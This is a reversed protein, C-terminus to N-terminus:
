EEDKECIVSLIKDQLEADMDCGNTQKWYLKAIEIPNLAKMEEQSFQKFVQDSEDERISQLQICCYRCKKTETASAAKAAWDAGGYQKVKVNLRIYAEKDDPFEELLRLAEEFEIPENEPITIVPRLTPIKWTRLAPSSGHEELEVITVSHTYDENFSVPIPSGSYRCGPAITQPFHIHGLALYDFGEGLERIDISDIGGVIIDQKRPDSGIVTTHATMIVPLSSSNISEVQEILAKYFAAPRKERPLDEGTDPFNQPYCHPVALIYGKAPNGVPIIHKELDGNRAVSGIVHLNFHRWISKDVELKASSDHNGATIVITMDPAAAHIRLMNDIYLKQTSTSPAITHYVDGSVVLADPNESEIVKLLEDFFLQHEDARDWNYLQHGLHWDSTHIVKMETM